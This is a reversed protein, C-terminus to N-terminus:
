NGRPIFTPLLKRWWKPKGPATVHHVQVIHGKNLANIAAAALEAKLLTRFKTGEIGYFFGVAAGTPGYALNILTGKGRIFVRYHDIKPEEPQKRTM